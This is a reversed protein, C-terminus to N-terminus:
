LMKKRLFMYIELIIKMNEKIRRISIDNKNNIVNTKGSDQKTLCLMYKERQSPTCHVPKSLNDTSWM